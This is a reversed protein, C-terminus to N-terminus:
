AYRAFLVMVVGFVVASIATTWLAKLVLRPAAPAGPDSGKVISGSEDQSRVGWPLVAFLVIWWITFYVVVAMFLPIPLTVRDSWSSSFTSSRSKVGPRM